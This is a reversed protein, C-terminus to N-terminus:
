TALHDLYRRRLRTPNGKVDMRVHPQGRSWIQPREINQQRQQSATSCYQEQSNRCIAHRRDLSCLKQRESRRVRKCAQQDIRRRFTLNDFKNFTILWMGSPLLFDLRSPTFLRRSVVCAMSISSQCAPLLTSCSSLGSLAAASFAAAPSGVANLMSIALFSMAPILPTSSAAPINLLRHHVKSALLRPNPM